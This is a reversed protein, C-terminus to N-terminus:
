SGGMRAMKSVLLRESRSLEEAGVFASSALCFIFLCYRVFPNM